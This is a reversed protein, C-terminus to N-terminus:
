NFKDGKAGDGTPDAGFNAPPPEKHLFRRVTSDVTDVDSDGVYTVLAFDYNPNETKKVIYDYLRRELGNSSDNWWVDCRPGPNGDMFDYHNTWAPMGASGPNGTPATFSLNPRWFQTKSLCKM